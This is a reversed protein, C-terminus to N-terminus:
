HVQLWNLGLSAIITPIIVSLDYYFTWIYLKRGTQRWSLRSKKLSLFFSFIVTKVRKRGFITRTLKKELSKQTTFTDADFTWYERFPISGHRRYKKHGTHKTDCICVKLVNYTLPACLWSDEQLFGCGNKVARHRASERYPKGRQRYVSVKM